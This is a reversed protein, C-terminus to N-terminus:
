GRHTAPTQNLRSRISIVWTLGFRFPRPRPTGRVQRVDTYYTAVLNRHVLNIAIAAEQALPATDEAVSNPGDARFDMTKIAVPLGRWEGARAACLM